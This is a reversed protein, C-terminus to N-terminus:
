CPIPVHYWRVADAMPGWFMVSACKRFLESLPTNCEVYSLKPSRRGYPIRFLGCQKSFQIGETRLNFAMNSQDWESFKLIDRWRQVQLLFAIRNEFNKTRNLIGWSNCHVFFAWNESLTRPRQAFYVVVASRMMDTQREAYPSAVKVSRIKTFHWM